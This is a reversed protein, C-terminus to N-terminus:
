RLSSGENTKDAYGIVGAGLCSTIDCGSVEKRLADLFVRTCVQTHLCCEDRKDRM